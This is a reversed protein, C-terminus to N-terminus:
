DGNAVIPTRCTAEKLRRGKGKAMPKLPAGSEEFLPPPDVHRSSFESFLLRLVARFIGALRQNTALLRDFEATAATPGTPPARLRATKESAQRAIESFSKETSLRVESGARSDLPYCM